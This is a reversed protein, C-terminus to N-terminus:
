RRRSCVAHLTVNLDPVTVLCPVTLHSSSRTMLLTQLNNGKAQRSEGRSLFPQEPDPHLSLPSMSCCSVMVAMSIHTIMHNSLTIVPTIDNIIEWGSFGVCLGSM